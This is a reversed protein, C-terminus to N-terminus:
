EIGSIYEKLKGFYDERVPIIKKLKENSLFFPIYGKVTESIIVEQNATNTKIFEFTDYFDTEMGYCVNYVDIKQKWEYKRIFDKIMLCLDDIHITEWFVLNKTSIQVPNGNKLNNVTNYIFGGKKDGGYIGPLRLIVGIISSNNCFFSTLCEGVYKSLGYTNVPAIAGSESVPLHNKPSYVTMSSIYIIKATLHHDKLYQLFSAYGLTNVSLDPHDLDCTSLSNLKAALIIVLDFYQGLLSSYSLPDEFNVKFYNEQQSNSTGTFFVESEEEILQSNLHRGLYGTGGVLLIKKLM